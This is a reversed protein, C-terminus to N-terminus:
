RQEGAKVTLVCFGPVLVVQDAADPRALVQLDEGKLMVALVVGTRRLYTSRQLGDVPDTYHRKTRWTITRGRKVLSSVKVQRYGRSALSALIVAGRQEQAASLPEAVAATM